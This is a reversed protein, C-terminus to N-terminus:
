SSQMSVDVYLRLRQGPRLIERSDLDNWRAIQQISVRFRRAIRSLSDGSRVTYNVRRITSGPASRPATESATWVLLKRGTPLTDGPAMGNWAALQRTSVAYRRGISWFSEGRAVVHEM